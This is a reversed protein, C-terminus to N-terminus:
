RGDANDETDEGFRAEILDGNRRGLRSTLTPYTEPVVELHEIGLLMEAEKIGTITGEIEMFSGFPLDDLVVEVSRFRWTDRYKEYVLAAEIQLENLIARMSEADQVQTEHEIQQKVGIENPMRRKLTLVTRGEVHRLRVAGGIERLLPSSFIVNEEFDRGVFEASMEKLAEIVERKSDPDLRYKKETEISM